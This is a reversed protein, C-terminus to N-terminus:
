IHLFISYSTGCTTCNRDSVNDAPLHKKWFAGACLEHYWTQVSPRTDM